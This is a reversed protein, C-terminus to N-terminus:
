SQVGPAEPCAERQPHLTKVEEATAPRAIICMIDGAVPVSYHTGHGGGTASYCSLLTPGKPENALVEPLEKGHLTIAAKCGLEQSLAQVRAIAYRLQVLTQEQNNM